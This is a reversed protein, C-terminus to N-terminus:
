NGGMDAFELRDGVIAIRGFGRTGMGGVGLFEVLRLGAHAVEIPQNWTPKEKDGEKSEPLSDTRYNDQILDLTLFPDAM